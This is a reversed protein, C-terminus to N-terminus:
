ANAKAIEAELAKKKGDLAILENKADVIQSDLQQIKAACANQTQQLPAVSLRGAEGFARIASIGPLIGASIFALLFAGFKSKKRASALLIALVIQVFWAEQGVNEEGTVTALLGIALLLVFISLVIMKRKRKKTKKMEEALNLYNRYEDEREQSYAVLMRNTGTISSNIANQRRKFDEDRQVRAKRLREAEEHERRVRDAEQRASLERERRAREAEEREKKEGEIREQIQRNYDMLKNTTDEDAYRVANKYSRFQDLPTKSHDLLIEYRVEAEAMLKYLYAKGCKSDVDLAKDCFISASSWDGAELLEQARQLFGEVNASNVSSEQYGGPQIQKAPENKNLIKKIHRILGDVSGLEELNQAELCALDGPLEYPDIFKYAVILTKQEGQKILSLYRSWENRVWVSLFHDIHTGLAVMIKASNLAAFICPEYASGLKDKLTIRAFFVRLGANTMQEYVDQAIVSDLTRKGDNDTEKYCIFVDYPAEDRSMALIDKQLKHIAVAEEQYIKKQQDDAYELTAKYNENDFISAYQARHVTPIRKGTKPDEVYEIGYHCLLLSWYAEADTCDEILILEYIGAAKDFENSRRLHNAREYLNAIRDDRMRPLTQMSGCYECEAITEGSAISLVGGCMKCKLVAM